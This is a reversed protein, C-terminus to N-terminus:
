CADTTILFGTATEIKPGLGSPGVPRLYDSLNRCIRYSHSDHRGTISRANTVWLLCVAWPAPGSLEGSTCGSFRTLARVEANDFTVRFFGAGVRESYDDTASQGGTDRFSQM